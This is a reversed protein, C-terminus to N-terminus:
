KLIIDIDKVEINLYIDDELNINELTSKLMILESEEIDKEKILVEYYEGCFSKDLIEVQM